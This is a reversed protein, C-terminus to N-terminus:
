SVRRRSGSRKGRLLLLTKEMSNQIEASKTATQNYITTIRDSVTSVMGYLKNYLDEYKEKQERLQKEYEKRESIDYYSACIFKHGGGNIVLSLLLSIPIPAGYYNLLECEGLWRGNDVTLEFKNDIDYSEPIYLKMNTGIIKDIPFTEPASSITRVAPNAYVITGDVEMLVIGNRVEEVMRHLRKSLIDSELQKKEMRLKNSIDTVLVILVEEEKYVSKSLRVDIPFSSGEKRRHYRLPVYPTMNRLCEKTLDPEDSLEIFSKNILDKKDYGYIDCAALNADRIIGDKTMIFAATRMIDFFDRYTDYKRRDPRDFISCM